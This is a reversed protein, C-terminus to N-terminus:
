LTIITANEERGTADRSGFRRILDAGYVDSLELKALDFTTIRIGDDQDYMQGAYEAMEVMRAPQWGKVSQSGGLEKGLGDLVSLRARLLRRRANTAAHADEQDARLTSAHIWTVSLGRRAAVYHAAASALATKGSGTISKNERECVITLANKPGPHEGNAWALVRLRAKEPILPLENTWGPPRIPQELRAWKYRSPIEITRLDAATIPLERCSKCASAGKDDAWTRGGCVQCKGPRVVPLAYATRADEGAALIDIATREASNM